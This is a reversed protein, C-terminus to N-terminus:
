TGAHNAAVVLAGVVRAGQGTPGVVMPNVDIEVIQTSLNMALDSLGTICAVVAEVDYPGQGRCGQLIPWIRLSRLM